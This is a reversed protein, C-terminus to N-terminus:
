REWVTNEVSIKRKKKRPYAPQQSKFGRDEDALDGSRRTNESRTEAFKPITAKSPSSKFHKFLFAITIESM